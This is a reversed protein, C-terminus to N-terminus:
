AAGGDADEATKRAVFEDVQDATDNLLKALARMQPLPMAINAVYRGKVEGEDSIFQELFSVKAVQPSVMVGQVSDMFITPADHRENLTPIKTGDSVVLPKSSTQGDSM